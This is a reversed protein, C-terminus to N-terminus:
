RHRPEAAGHSCNGRPQHGHPGCAGHSCNGRTRAGNNRYGGHHNHDDAIIAAAIGVTLITDLVNPKREVIVTTAPMPAPASIYGDNDIYVARPACANDIYVARPACANMNYGPTTEAGNVIIVQQANAAVALLLTALLALFTKMTIQISLPNM